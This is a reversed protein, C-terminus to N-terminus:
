LNTPLLLAADVGFWPAINYAATSPFTDIAKYAPRDEADRVLAYTEDVEVAVAYDNPLFGGAFRSPAGSWHYGGGLLIPAWAEEWAGEGEQQRVTAELDAAVDENLAGLGLGWTWARIM